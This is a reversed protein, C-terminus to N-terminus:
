RWGRSFDQPAPGAAARSPELGVPSRRAVNSQDLMELAPTAYQKPATCFKEYTAENAFLYVRGQFWGGHERRGPTMEGRELLLVVDNGGAAPAYGDPDRDFRDRQEPGAFLYTRGRHILGWRPDGSVWRQGEALEVPCFGDLGLPPNGAPLQVASPQVRPEIPPQIPPPQIPPSPNRAITPPMAIGPPQSPLSAAAPGRRAVEPRAAPAALDEPPMISASGGHRLGSTPPVTVTPVHPPPDGIAPRDSGAYRPGVLSLEGETPREVRAVYRGDPPTQPGSPPYEPYRSAPPGYQPPQAVPGAIQREMGGLNASAAVQNLRAVYQRADAAGDIKRVLQGQPTIIVESPLVTVGYQRGTHPYHAVNIRVPVFATEIAAAVEPQTFVQQEMRRCPQCSDAWFHILVLRNTQSALRKAAELSVQWRLAPEASASAVLGCGVLAICCLWRTARM